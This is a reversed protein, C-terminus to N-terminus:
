CIPVGFMALQDGRLILHHEVSSYAGHTVLYEVLRPFDRRLLQTMVGNGMVSIPRGPLDSVYASHFRFIAARDVCVANHLILTGASSYMGRPVIHPGMHLVRDVCVHIDGGDEWTCEDARAQGVFVAVIIRLAIIAVFGYMWARLALSKM